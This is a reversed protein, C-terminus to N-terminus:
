GTDPEAVHPDASLFRGLVPDYLRGGTHVLGTRDLHEHGTFGRAARRPLAASEAATLSRTWDARRRGGFPDHALVALAAGTGGSVAAASGLHDLHRYEFTEAVTETDDAAVTTTRVHVAGGPLRTREVSAAAADGPLTEEYTGVRVTRASKAADGERWEAFREYRAGGPGHRFTERVAPTTDALGSGVVVRAPRGRADWGVFRDVTADGPTAFTCTGTTRECARASALRGTGDYAYQRRTGGATAHRVANLAGAYDYGAAAADGAVSSTKSLVNGLADYSASLTRAATGHSM